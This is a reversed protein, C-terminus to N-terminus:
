PLDLEPFDRKTKEPNSRFVKPSIGFKEQFKRHFSTLSSFHVEKVIEAIPLDTQLLRVAAAKLRYEAIMKQPSLTFHKKWERFFAAHSFGFRSAVADCNLPQDYHNQLFLAAKQIRTAPKNDTQEPQRQFLVERMIQLCVWDLRDAMGSLTYCDFLDRFEAVLASLRLNLQIPWYPEPPILDWKELIKEAETDFYFAIADRPLDGALATKMGRRKFVVNPFPINMPVGDIIDECLSAQSRLRLNVEFRSIELAKGTFPVIRNDCYYIGGVKLPFHQQRPIDIINTRALGM